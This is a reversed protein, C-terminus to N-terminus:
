PTYAVVTQSSVPLAGTKVTLTRTAADYTSPVEAGNVTAQAPAAPVNRFKVTWTRSAVAGPFSGSRAAITVAHSGEAYSLATRSSEGSRHGHGEGADEYLSSTGDAGVAVDLTVQDLPKANASDVYDTRTPLVGGSRLFVPM